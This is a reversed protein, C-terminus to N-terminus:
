ITNEEILNADLTQATTVEKSVVFAKIPPQERQANAISTAIQNESSAQIGTQPQASIGQPRQPTAGASVSGGSGISQLAKQTGSIITAINTAGVAADLAILPVNQPFGKALDKTIAESTNAVAKGVSMGGEAIISARQLAKNKGALQQTNKILNDAGDILAKENAKKAEVVANEIAIVKDANDKLLAQSEEFSLAQNERILEEREALLELRTEFDLEENEAEEEKKALDKEFQERDQNEKYEKRQNDYYKQIELKAEENNKLDEIEKLKKQEEYNIRDLDNQFTAELNKQAYDNKIDLLKQQHAKEEDDEKKNIEKILNARDENTLKKDAIVKKRQEEYSLNENAFKERLLEAEKTSNEKAIRQAEKNTEIQAQKKEKQEQEWDEKAKKKADTEDQKTAIQHTINLKRQEKLSESFDKNADNFAEIAKKATNKQAETADELSAIRQAEVAISRLKVAIVRKEAVEQQMLAKELSRIEKESKGSAKAMGLTAMRNLEMQETAKENAKKQEDISKSLKKNAVEARLAEGSFDGFAGTLYGIGLVLGAVAGTILTIPAFAIKTAISWLNTAVTLATTAITASKKATTEAVVATTSAVQTATNTATAVTNAGTVATDKVKETTLVKWADKLTNQLLKFQDGINSLNSIADSFAMAAQVKLLQAQTEKSQDGFLAMGSTVGQLGTGALQTAAGLAKFKQDPNFKDTLDAAFQMQDKLNAVKKAAEIAEKSTEGYINVANQLEINANRVQQRLSAQAKTTEDVSNTLGDVKQATQDANTEFIIKIKDEQEAM